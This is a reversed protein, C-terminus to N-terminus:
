KPKGGHNSKKVYGDRSHQKLIQHILLVQDLYPVIENATALLLDNSQGVNAHHQATIGFLRGNSRSWFGM